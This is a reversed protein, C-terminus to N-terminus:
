GGTEKLLLPLLVRHRWYAPNSARTQLSWERLDDAIKRRPHANAYTSTHVFTYLTDSIHNGEATIPIPRYLARASQESFAVLADYLALTGTFTRNSDPFREPDGFELSHGTWRCPALPHGTTVAVHAGFLKDEADVAAICDGHSWNDGLSHLYIGLAEPSGPVIGGTDVTATATVFCPTVDYINVYNQWTFQVTGSYGFTAIGILDETQGFAWARIAGLEDPRDHPFHFFPSYPGFRSTFCGPCELLDTMGMTVTPATTAPSPCYTTTMVTTIPPAAPYSTAKFSYIPENAPLRGPDVMQSYVQITAADTVSFGAAIALTGVLDFHVSSVTTDTYLLRSAAAPDYFYLLTEESWAGVGSLTSLLLLIAACPALVVLGFRVLRSHNTRLKFRTIM